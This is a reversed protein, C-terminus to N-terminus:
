PVGTLARRRPSLLSFMRIQAAVLSMVRHGFAAPLGAGALGLREETLVAWRLWVKGPGSPAGSVSGRQRREHSRGERCGVCLVADSGVQESGGELVDTGGIGAGRVPLPRSGDPPFPVQFDM